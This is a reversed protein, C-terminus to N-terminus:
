KEYLVQFERQWIILLIFLKQECVEVCIYINLGLPSSTFPSHLFSRLSSSLLRYKEGLIKQTIFDLLILHAPCTHSLSSTYVPSQQPFTLFLSWKRSGLTCPFIIILNIKLFHSTPTHVPDLQSLIPVSSPCKDIRYYVKGNWLM